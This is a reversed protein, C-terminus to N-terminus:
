DFDTPLSPDRHFEFLRHLQKRTVRGLSLDDAPPLDDEKFFGVESTEMSVTATGGTLECLFFMKYVYLFAPPHDHRTKDYVALLKVARTEYGSEEFVERVTSAAPSDNVDAWGGPLTWRNHDSIERVMLLADDKFVVGRVDVKPTAPGTEHDLVQKVHGMDYISHEAVIEASLDQFKEYREIDYADKSYAIGTQAWSKILRAWQLWKTDM